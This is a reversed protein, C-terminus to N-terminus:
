GRFTIRGRDGGLDSSTRFYLSYSTEPTDSYPGFYFTTGGYLARPDTYSPNTYAYAGGIQLWDTLEFVGDLELGEIEAENVNGATAAPGTPLVIYITRQVDEVEMKYLAMNFRSPISGLLGSFKAGLEFDKTKEPRMYDGVPFKYGSTQNFAGTRWSGRTVGYIMLEDTVNYSASLEWSPDDHEEETRQFASLLRPNGPKSPNFTIGVEEKTWRMGAALNLKDSVEFNAQAYIAKSKSDTVADYAGYYLNLSSLDTAIAIPSYEPREEDAYFVGLIYQWSGFTM